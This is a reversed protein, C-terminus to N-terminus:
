LVLLVPTELINVLTDLFAAAPAGDVARHDFSLSLLITPQSVAEGSDTLVVKDTITGIGLIAVEPQNIIPDFSQVVSKGLSTITITGGSLDKSTLRGHRAKEALQKSQDTLDTLGMHHAGKIVPVLLGDDVAVALGVNVEKFLHIGDNQVHANLKPHQKLAIAMAKIIIETYSLRKGTTKQIMPLVSKRLEIIPQANFSTKLTVHPVEQRSKTMRESIIKRMGKWPIITEKESSTDIREPIAMKESPEQISEPQKRSERTQIFVQVDEIHIRGKRGSGAVEALDIDNERSLRRAAPTARIQQNTKETGKMQFDSLQKETDPQKALDAQTGSSAQQESEATATDKQDSSLTTEAANGSPPSAPVEEGKEGIYGIVSNVPVPEDIGYYKKLLIGDDYAEVEIAIKDTMVEFIAEGMDVPDGEDKFWQTISGEEMTSSLKPMFIEHAM